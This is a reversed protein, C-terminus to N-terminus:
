MDLVFHRYHQIKLHKLQDYYFHTTPRVRTAQRIARWHQSGAQSRPKDRFSRNYDGGEPILPQVTVTSTFLRTERPTKPVNNMSVVHM